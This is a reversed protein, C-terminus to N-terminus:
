DLALDDGPKGCLGKDVPESMRIHAVCNIVGFEHIYNITYWLTLGLSILHYPSAHVGDLHDLFAM